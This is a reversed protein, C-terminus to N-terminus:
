VSIFLHRFVFIDDLIQGATHRRCHTVEAAGVIQSFQSQRSSNAKDNHVTKNYNSCSNRHYSLKLTKRTQSSFLIIWTGLIPKKPSGLHTIDSMTLISLYWNEHFITIAQLDNIVSILTRTLDTMEM